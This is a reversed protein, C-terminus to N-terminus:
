SRLILTCGIAFLLVLVLSRYGTAPIHHRAWNGVHVGTLAPVVALASLALAPVSMVGASMLGIALFISATIVALNVAQVFCNTDLKVALMYPMLPMVQSGTLGTCLGNLLGVPIQAARETREELSFAPAKLTFIAYLSILLGLVRSSTRQDIWVLLAIGIVIGPLTSAYLRWFRCLMERFHGVSCLVLVNSAMAPVVLLSIAPQLGVTCVLFPLACSSYGVGTAGKIIGAVFLGFVAVIIIGWDMVTGGIEVQFLSWDVSGFM